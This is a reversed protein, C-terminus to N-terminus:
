ITLRECINIISSIVVPPRNLPKPFVYRGAPILMKPVYRRTGITSVSIEIPIPSSAAHHDILREDIRFPRTM